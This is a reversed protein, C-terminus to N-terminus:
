LCARKRLRCYQMPLLLNYSNANAKEVKIESSARDAHHPPRVFRTAPTKSRHLCGSSTVRSKRIHVRVSSYWVFSGNPGKGDESSGYGTSFGTGTVARCRQTHGSVAPSRESRVTVRTIMQAATIMLVSLMAYSPLSYRQFCTTSSLM